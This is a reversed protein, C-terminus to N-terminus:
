ASCHGQIYEHTIDVCRQWMRDDSRFGRAFFAIFNFLGGLNLHNAMRDEVVIHPVAGELTASDTGVVGDSLDTFMPVSGVIHWIRAGDPAIVPPRDLVWRKRGKIKTPIWHGSTGNLWTMFPSAVDLDAVVADPMGLRRLISEVYNTILGANPAGLQICCAIEGIREPYARLFGRAIVGGASYGFLVVPFAQPERAKLDELFAALLDVRERLPETGQPFFRCDYGLNRLGPKGKRGEVFTDMRNSKEHWGPILVITIM